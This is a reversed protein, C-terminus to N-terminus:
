EDHQDVGVATIFRLAAADNPFIGVVNTRRKIEANLRELSNTSSIKQVHNTPIYRFATIRPPPSFCRALSM